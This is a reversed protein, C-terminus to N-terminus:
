NRNNGRIKDPRSLSDLVPNRLTFKRNGADTLAEDSSINFVVSAVVAYMVRRTVLQSAVRHVTQQRHEIFFTPLLKQWAISRV